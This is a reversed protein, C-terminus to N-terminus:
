KLSQAQTRLKAAGEELAEARMILRRRYDELASARDQFLDDAAVYHPNGAGVPRIKYGVGREHHIVTALYIGSFTGPISVWYNAGNIIHQDM